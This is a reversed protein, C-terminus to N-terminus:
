QSFRDDNLLRRLVAVVGASGNDLLSIYTPMTQHALAITEDAQDRLLLLIRADKLVDRLAAIRRLDERTPGAIILTSFTSRPRKLREVLATLDSFVEMKGPAVAQSVDRLHREGQESKGALIFFVNM